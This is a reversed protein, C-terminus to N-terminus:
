FLTVAAAKLEVARMHTCSDRWYDTKLEIGYARRGMKVAQVTTTGLGNFPDLVLDDPNSYLEILREPIDLQFPCIHKEENKKTQESNLTRMRLVDTWVEPHTSLPPVAMFTRPLKGVAELQRCITLHDEYSYTETEQLAKWAKGIQSLDARELFEASILRRGDSKWYAHADIQWRDVTYDEKSHVVPVDAYGNSRDTPPKRFILVYEPLGHGRATGDKCKESHGLRNTQNNESVVDTTITVRGMLHFGHRRFHASTDDSFPDVTTFGVGNQYGYRIRDKVHVACIRGPQLVRFLQPTLFDMQRFFDANTENHGMCNYNDSYEYHNGFPISTVILGVSESAMAATEPVNDNNVLTYGRGTKVRRESFKQRKLESGYLEANLGHEQIIDTMKSQLNTHLAWKRDVTDIQKDEADTYIFHAECARAQGFRYTRHVAQILDNFKYGVTVFIQKHCHRQLNCGSGAITPKTSLYQVRGEAFDILAAEKEDPTMSGTVTVLRDGADLMEAILDREDNRDHWIIYHGDPDERLIEVARRVRDRLSRRKEASQDQFRVAQNAFMATQQENRADTIVGRKVKVRHRVIALPPLTYGADSYGLDSPKTIFCAWSAMWHWFEAERREYLKLNGAKQSDRKFWRTLIAGRDMVGLFDAYHTLELYRNPSPTATCVFRFPIVRFERMLAETTETARGRMISAEDLSCCGFRAPDIDGMRVREYNTIYLWQGAEMQDTHTIYRPEQMGLMRAALVFEHKVGLPCTILCCCDKEDHVIRNTELQIFTKGLGFSLFDARQGGRVNWVVVDRQHPFLMPHVRDPTIAFGGQPALKIKSDLFEDYSTTHSM